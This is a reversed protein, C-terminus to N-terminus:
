TSHKAKGAKEQRIARVGYGQYEASCALSLGEKGPELELMGEWVTHEAGAAEKATCGSRQTEERDEM